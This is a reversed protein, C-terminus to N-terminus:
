IGAAQKTDKIVPTLLHPIGDYLSLEVRKPDIMVFRVERPTARYLISSILANLCVSKGSNTSGGILLHPM